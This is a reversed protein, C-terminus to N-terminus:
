LMFKGASFLVRARKEVENDEMLKCEPMKFAEDLEGASLEELKKIVSRKIETKTEKKRVNTIDM